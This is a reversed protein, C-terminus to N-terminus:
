VNLEPNQQQQSVQNKLWEEKQFHSYKDETVQHTRKKLATLFQEEPNLLLLWM